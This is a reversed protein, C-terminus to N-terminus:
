SGKALKETVEFLARRVDDRSTSRVEVILRNASKGTERALKSRAHGIAGTLLVLAVCSDGRIKSIINRRNIVEDRGATLWELWNDDDPTHFENIAEVATMNPRGGVVIIRRKNAAIQDKIYERARAFRAADEREKVAAASGPRRAADMAAAAERFSNVKPYESALRQIVLQDRQAEESSPQAVHVRAVAEVIPEMIPLAFEGLPYGAEQWRKLWKSTMKTRLSGSGQTLLAAGAARLDPETADVLAARYLLDIASVQGSFAEKLASDSWLDSPRLKGLELARSAVAVTEDLGAGLMLRLVQLHVSKKEALEVDSANALELLTTGLVVAFEVPVLKAVLDFHLLAIKHSKKARIGELVRIRAASDWSAQALDLVSALVTADVNHTTMAAQVMIQAQQPTLDKGQNAAEIVSAVDGRELSIAGLIEDKLSAPLLAQRELAEVLAVRPDAAGSVAAVLDKISDENFPITVADVRADKNEKVPENTPVDATAVVDEEVPPTKSLRLREAANAITGVVWDSVRRPADQASDATFPSWRTYSESDRHSTPLNPLRKLGAISEEDESDSTITVSWRRGLGPLEGVNVLFEFRKEYDVFSFQDDEVRAPLLPVGTIRLHDTVSARQGM